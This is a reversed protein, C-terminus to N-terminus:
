TKFGFSQFWNSVEGRRNDIDDLTNSIRNAREQYEGSACFWMIVTMAAHRPAYGESRLWFYYKMPEKAVNM